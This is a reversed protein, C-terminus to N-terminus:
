TAESDSALPAGSPNDVSTKSPYLPVSPQDVAPMPLSPDLPPPISPEDVQPNLYSPNDHEPSEGDEFEGGYVDPHQRFCDQM